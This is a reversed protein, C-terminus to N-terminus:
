VRQEELLHIGDTHSAYPSCTSLADTRSDAPMQDQSAYMHLQIIPHLSKLIERVGAMAKVISSTTVKNQLEEPM